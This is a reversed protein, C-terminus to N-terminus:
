LLGLIEEVTNLLEEDRFSGARVLLDKLTADHPHAFVLLMGPQMKKHKLIEVMEPHKKDILSLYFAEM